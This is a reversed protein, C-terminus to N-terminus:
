LPPLANASTSEAHPAYLSLLHEFEERTIEGRIFAGLMPARLIVGTM